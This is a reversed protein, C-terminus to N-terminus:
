LKKLHEFLDSIKSIKVEGWGKAQAPQKGAKPHSDRHSEMKYSEQM